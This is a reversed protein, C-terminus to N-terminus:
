ALKKGIFAGLLGGGAAAYGVVAGGAAASLTAPLTVVAGISAGILLPTFKFKKGSAAQLHFNAQTALDVTQETNTNIHKIDEDQINIISALEAQIENIERTQKLIEKLETKEDQYNYPIQKVNDLLLKKEDM